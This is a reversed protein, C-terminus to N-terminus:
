NVFKNFHSPQAIVLQLINVMNLPLVQVNSGLGQKVQILGREVDVITGIKILFDLGLLVDYSNTDIVMFVVSCTTEGVQMPLGEIRGLAQTVVCSAIKYSEFGVILHMIGLERIVVLVLIFMSAGIDIQGLEVICNNIEVLLHFTKSRHNKSISIRHLTFLQQATANTSFIRHEENKQRRALKVLGELYELEGLITLITEMPTLSIKGKIFHTLIKFRITADKELGISM